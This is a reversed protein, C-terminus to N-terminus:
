ICIRIRHVLKFFRVAVPVVRKKLLLLTLECEMLRLIYGHLFLFVTTRRRLSGFFMPFDFRKIIVGGLIGFIEALGGIVRIFLRDTQKLRLRGRNNIVICTL